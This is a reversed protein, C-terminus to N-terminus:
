RKEGFKRVFIRQKAESTRPKTRVLRNNVILIKGTKPDLVPIKSDIIMKKYAYELNFKKIMNYCM